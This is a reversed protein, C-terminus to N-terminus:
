HLEAERTAVRIGQASPSTSAPHASALQAQLDDTRALFWAAGEAQIKQALDLKKQVDEVKQASDVRDALADRMVACGLQSTQFRALLVNYEHQRHAVFPGAAAYIRVLEEELPEVRSRLERFRHQLNEHDTALDALATVLILVGTLHSISARMVDRDLPPLAVHISWVSPTDSPDGSPARTIPDRAAPGASVVM